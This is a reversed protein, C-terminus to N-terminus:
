TNFRDRKTSRFMLLVWYLLSAVINLVFALLSWGFEALDEHLSKKTSLVNLANRLTGIKSLFTHSMNQNLGAIDASLQKTTGKLEEHVTESEKVPNDLTKLFQLSLSIERLLLEYRSDVQLRLTTFPKTCNDQLKMSQSKLMQIRTQLTKTQSSTEFRVSKIVELAYIRKKSSKMFQVKSLSNFVDLNRRYKFEAYASSPVRDKYRGIIARPPPAQDDTRVSQQTSWRALNEPSKSTSWNAM